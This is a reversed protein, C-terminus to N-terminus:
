YCVNRKLTLEQQLHMMNKLILEGNMADEVNSPFVQSSYKIVFEIDELLIINDYISKLILKVNEIELRDYYFNRLRIDLEASLRQKLTERQFETIKSKVNKLYNENIQNMDDPLYTTVRRVFTNFDQSNSFLQKSNYILEDIVQNLNPGDSGLGKVLYFETITDSLKTELISRDYIATLHRILSHFDNCEIQFMRYLNEELPTAMWNIEILHSLQSLYSPLSEIQTFSIDLVELKMLSSVNPLEKLQQNGHLWLERLNPFIQFADQPIYYLHNYSLDIRLINQLNSENICQQIIHFLNFSSEKSDNTLVIGLHSLHLHKTDKANYCERQIHELIDQSKSFLM